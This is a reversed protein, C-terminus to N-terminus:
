AMQVWHEPVGPPRDKFRKWPEDSEYCKRRKIEKIINKIRNKTDQLQGNHDAKGGWPVEDCDAELYRRRYNHERATYYLALQLEACSSASGYPFQAYNKQALKYNSYLDCCRDVKDKRETSTGKDGEEIWKDVADWDVDGNTVPTQNETDAPSIQPNQAPNPNNPNIDFPQPSRRFPPKPTPSLPKPISPAEEIIEVPPLGPHDAINGSRRIRSAPILPRLIPPTKPTIFIWFFGLHDISDIACNFNGRGCFRHTFRQM